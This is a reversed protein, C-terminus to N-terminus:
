KTLSFSYIFGIRLGYSNSQYTEGFKHETKLTNYKYLNLRRYFPAVCFSVNDWTKRYEFEILATPGVWMLEFCGLQMWSLIGNIFLANNNKYLIPYGYGLGADAQLAGDLFGLEGNLILKGWKSNEYDFRTSLGFVEYGFSLAPNLNISKASDNDTAYIKTPIFLLVMLIPCIYNKMNKM